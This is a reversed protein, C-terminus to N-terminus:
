LNTCCLFANGLDGLYSIKDTTLSTGDFTGIEYDFSADYILWKKNKPDGDVPLEVLDMCEYVWRRDFDSLKKWNKLDTSSFFRVKGMDDLNNKDARKIWLILIWKQSHSHWFIKPDREGREFGQNPLLAIGGDILEFTRGIDTSFAGAQYFLHNKDNQAHTFYAVIAKEESTNKGLSNPHDDAATGSFITGKGYPLIANPLQEWHVMDQNVAHGWTMNGWHIAKPNHQFFLHYEGQYYVM